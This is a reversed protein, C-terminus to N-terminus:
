MYKMPTGVTAGLGLLYIYVHLEAKLSLFYWVKTVSSRVELMLNKIAPRIAFTVLLLNGYRWSLIHTLLCRRALSRSCETHICGGLASDVVGLGLSADPCWGM